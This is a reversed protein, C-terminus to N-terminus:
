WGTIIDLVAAEVASLRAEVTPQETSVDVQSDFSVYDEIWETGDWRPIKITDPILVSIYNPSLVSADVLSEDGIDVDCVYRRTIPDIKHLIM